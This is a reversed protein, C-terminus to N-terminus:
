SVLSSSHWVYMSVMSFMKSLQMTSSSFMSPMIFNLLSMLELLNNQLPTGTLLLRHEAQLFICTFVLLDSDREPLFHLNWSLPSFCMRSVNISMLHRYRLTNMNKLMHGEDFIAYKINLRRFLGRDSDNGIALNYWDM